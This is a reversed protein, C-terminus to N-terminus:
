ARFFDKQFPSVLVASPPPRSKLEFLAARSRLLPEVNHAPPGNINCLQTTNTLKSGRAVQFYFLFHFLCAPPRREAHTAAFLLFKASVRICLACHHIVSMM